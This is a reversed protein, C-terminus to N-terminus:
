YAQRQGHPSTGTVSLPSFPSLVVNPGTGGINEASLLFCSAITPFPTYFPAPGSASVDDPKGTNQPFSDKM